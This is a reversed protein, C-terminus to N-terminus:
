GTIILLFLSFFLIQSKHNQRLPVLPLKPLFCEIYVPKKLMNELEAKLQQDLDDKIMDNCSQDKKTKAKRNSGKLLLSRVPRATRLEGVSKIALHLPTFGNIDQAELNPQMALLYSLVYEAKSYCSWHLPTSGRNDGENIDM